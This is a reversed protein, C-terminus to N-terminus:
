FWIKKKKVTIKKKKAKTVYKKKVLKYNIKEVVKNKNLISSTESIFARLTKNINYSNWANSWTRQGRVPKGVAHCRGRYSKILYERVLIFKLLDPSRHNVSNVQSFIINLPRLLSINKKEFLSGILLNEDRAVTSLDFRSILRNKMSPGLGPLIFFVSDLYQDFYFLRGGYFFGKTWYIQLIHEFRL